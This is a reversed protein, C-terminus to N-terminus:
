CDTKSKIELARSYIDRRPKGTQESVYAVANKLSSNELAQTIMIDLTHPKVDVTKSAGSVLIVMEGKPAGNGDYYDTLDLLLGFRLEEHIKTLERAVAAKRNGFAEALEAITGALRNASEYIVLTAKIAKLEEMKKRRVNKKSPLFGLFIFNDTPFGATVLAALAACAGPLAFVPIEALHTEYVLRYGPDSITPTGADSVLAVIEGNKLRRILKPRVKQANHEHYSLTPTTIKYISLLRRTVRTDECAIIDAAALVDIARLTIDRANGIPTSVVYLGSRLSQSSFVNRNSSKM